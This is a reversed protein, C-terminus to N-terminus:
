NLALEFKEFLDRYRYDKNLNLLWEGGTTTLRGPVAIFKLRFTYLREKAVKKSILEARFWISTNYLLMAIQFLAENSWFKQVTFFKFRTDNKAEKIYNECTGRERYFLVLEKATLDILNTCYVQYEYQNTDGILAIQNSSKKLKRLVVFKRTKDWKDLSFHITTIQWQQDFQQYAHSPIEIIRQLLTPYLKAAIVYFHEMSELLSMLADNFFGSDARFTITRITFPLRAICEQIFREIGNGTYTNGPRLFGHLFEKTEYIFALVPHYGNHNKYHKGTGEQHGHTDKPTSDCDITVTKLRFLKQHMSAVLVQQVRSLEYAHKFNFKDLFCRVINEPYPLKTVGILRLIFHDNFLLFIHALKEYGVTFLIFISKFYDTKTFDRKRKYFSVKSEFLSFIKLNKDLYQMFPKLGAFSTLKDKTFIIKTKNM